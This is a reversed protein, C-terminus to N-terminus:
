ISVKCYRADFSRFIRLFIRQYGQIWAVYFCFVKETSSCLVVFVMNFELEVLVVIV